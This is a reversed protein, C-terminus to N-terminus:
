YDITIGRLLKEVTRQLQKACTIWVGLDIQQQWVRNMERKLAPGELSSMGDLAERLEILIDREVPKLLEGNRRKWLSGLDDKKKM